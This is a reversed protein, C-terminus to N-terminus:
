IAQEAHLPGFTDSLPVSPQETTRPRSAAGLQEALNRLGRYGATRVAGARKGLIAGAAKADLGMVVRLLVAEAQDPPLTGILALARRTALAELAQEDAHDRDARDPLAEMPVPAVPRRGQARVHDLARHRGITTLWGRFGDGDGRFTPLDRVAQAWTESALDEAEGAGVLVSLYRLLRPQLCRYVIRFADQDGACMAAVAAAFEADSAADATGAASNAGGPM